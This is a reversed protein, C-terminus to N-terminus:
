RRDGKPFAKYTQKNSERIGQRIGEAAGVHDVVGHQHITINQNVLGAAGGFGAGMHLAGPSLSGNIFDGMFKGFGEKTIMNFMKADEGVGKVAWGGVHVILFGLATALDNLIPTAKELVPVFSKEITLGFTSLHEQFDQMARLEGENMVVGRSAMRSFEKPSLDFIRMMSPDIGMQQLLSTAITPNKMRAAQGIQRFLQMPDSLSPSIGTGTFLQGMALMFGRDMKGLRLNAMVNTLRMMSGQVVDTSLGVQKAVGTWRQLEEVSLGTEARFVGLNNAIDLTNKTLETFGISLGTLSVIAGAVSLPIDAIARSFDKVTFTDAKVGLKVVFEGLNV